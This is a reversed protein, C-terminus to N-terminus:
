AAGTTEQLVQEGYVEATEWDCMAQDIQRRTHHLNVRADDLAGADTMDASTLHGAYKLSVALSFADQIAELVEDIAALRDAAYKMDKPSEIISM